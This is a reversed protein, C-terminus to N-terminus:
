PLHSPLDFSEVHCNKQERIIFIFEGITEAADDAVPHLVLAM